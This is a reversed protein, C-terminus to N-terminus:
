MQHLLPSLAKLERRAAVHGPCLQEVWAWFRPSHNMENLHALEHAVVYHIVHPPAQILRWHLRVEGRSNCSGWRTRANSLLVRSPAKGLRAALLEIRRTFDALAQRRYWLVVKRQVAAVDAIDPQAITLALGDFEPQRNRADTRLRLQVPQGLHLLETGDQWSFPPPVNERLALKDAIWGSKERLLQEVRNWAVRRPIHVTLGREDIKLGITRRRASVKLIYEIHRGDALALQRSTM